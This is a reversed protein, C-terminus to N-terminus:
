AAPDLRLQAGLRLSVSPPRPRPVASAPWLATSSPLDRPSAAMAHPMSRCIRHSQTCRYLSREIRKHATCVMSQDIFIGGYLFFKQGRGEEADAEDGYMLYM